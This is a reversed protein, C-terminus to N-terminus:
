RPSGTGGVWRSLLGDHDAIGTEAYDLELDRRGGAAWLEQSHNHDLHRTRRRRQGARADYGSYVACFTQRWGKSQDMMRDFSGLSPEDTEPKREDDDELETIVYLDSEVSTFVSPLAGESLSSSSCWAM